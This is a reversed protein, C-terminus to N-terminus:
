HSTPLQESCSAHKARKKMCALQTYGATKVFLVKCLIIHDGAPWFGQHPSLWNQCNRPPAPLETDRRGYLM